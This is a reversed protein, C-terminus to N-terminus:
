SRMGLPTARWSRPQPCPTAPGARRGGPAGLRGRAGRGRGAGRALRRADLAPRVGRAHERHRARRRGPHAARLHEVIQDIVQQPDQDAVLRCTIKAHASAPVITHIGEGLFGGWAGNIELTPRAWVQELPTYPTEGALYRSGTEALYRRARARVGGLARAGRRRGRRGRDYFGAVAVRGNADHLGALLERAREGREPRRRRLHGLAPELACDLRLLRARGHRARGDHRGPVGPEHM